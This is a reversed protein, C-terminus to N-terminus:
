GFLCDVAYDPTMALADYRGPNSIYEEALDAADAIVPEGTVKRRYM